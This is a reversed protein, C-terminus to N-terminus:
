LASRIQARNLNQQTVAIQLGRRFVQMQGL